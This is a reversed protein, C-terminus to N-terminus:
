WVYRNPLLHQCGIFVNHHLQVGHCRIRDVHVFLASRIPWMLDRGHPCSSPQLTVLSKRERRLTHSALSICAGGSGSAPSSPATSIAPLPAITFSARCMWILFCPPVIRVLRQHGGIVHIRLLAQSNITTNTQMEESEVLSSTRM